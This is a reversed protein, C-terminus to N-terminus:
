EAFESKIRRILEDIELCLVQSGKWTFSASILASAEPEGSAGGAGATGASEQEVTVLDAPAIDAIDTVDDILFALKDIEEKLVIIKSAGSPTQFLLLGIDILAYPVFYRNIIGRVYAPMLPLPFVNEFAAVENISKSPLAYSTGQISFILYRGPAAGAPPLEKSADEVPNEAM